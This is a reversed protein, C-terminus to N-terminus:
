GYGRAVPWEAVVDRGRVIYLRDHLNVRPDCHPVLFRIREGLRVPRAGERWELIGHEDGAFRYTAAIGGLPEPGFPKDTSCAKFGADVTASGVHSASVVTALLSLSPPFDDYVAGMAGGVARYDVDMFVYSGAQIETMGAFAPDINYTGTSGGTMISVPVGSSRLTAFTELAPALARWSHARRAEWGEVHASSSAYCQLGHLRLGPLDAISRALAVAADGPAIGTRHVGPDVDVLVNLVLGVAAAAQGLDRAHVANDVVCMLDPSRGALAVLREVRSPGVMESTILVGRIGANVMAEAERITACCVGVAGAAVQRRAIEVCKHTKVHPRLQLGTASVREQMRAINADLVDLDVLLCPTPLDDLTQPM